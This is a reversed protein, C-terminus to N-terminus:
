NRINNGILTINRLIVSQICPMNPWSQPYQHGPAIAGPYWYGLASYAGMSELHKHNFILVWEKQNEKMMYKREWEKVKDDASSGSWRRGSDGNADFEDPGTPPIRRLDTFEPASPVSKLKDSPLDIESSRYLKKRESTLVTNPIDMSTMVPIKQEPVTPSDPKDSSKVEYLHSRSNPVPRSRKPSIPTRLRNPTRLTPSTRSDEAMIREPSTTVSATAVTRIDTHAPLTYITASPVFTEVRYSLRDQSKTPLDLTASALTDESPPATEKKTPFPLPAVIDKESGPSPVDDGVYYNAARGAPAPLTDRSPIPSPAVHPKASDGQAQREDREIMRQHRM